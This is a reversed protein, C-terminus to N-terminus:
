GPRARGTQTRAHGEGQTILLEILDKSRRRRYRRV